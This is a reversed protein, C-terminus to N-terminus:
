RTQSKTKKKWFRQRYFLFKNKCRLVEKALFRGSHLGSAKSSMSTFGVKHGNFDRSSFYSRVLESDTLSAKGNTSSEIWRKFKRWSSHWMTLSKLPSAKLSEEHNRYRQRSLSWTIKFRPVLSTSFRRTSRTTSITSRPRCLGTASRSAESFNTIKRPTLLRAARVSRTWYSTGDRSTTALCTMSRVKSSTGSHRILNGSLWMSRLGALYRKM